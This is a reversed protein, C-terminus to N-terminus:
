GSRTLRTFLERAANAAVQQDNAVALKCNGVAGTEEAYPQSSDRWVGMLILGTAIFGGSARAANGGWFFTPAAAADLRHTVSGHSGFSRRWDRAPERQPRDANVACRHRRCPMGNLGIPQQELGWIRTQRAGDNSM